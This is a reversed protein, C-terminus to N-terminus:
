GKKARGCLFDRCVQPRENYKKCYYKGEKNQDLNICILPIRMVSFKREDKLTIVQVDCRHLNLWHLRDMVAIENEKTIQEWRLDVVMCCLGCRLCEAM